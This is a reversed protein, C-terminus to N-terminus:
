IVDLGRNIESSFIQPSHVGTAVLLTRMTNELLPDVQAGWILRANPDIRKHVEGAVKQAEALTMDDGGYVNILAANAGSIDVDLLPSELAKQVSEMARGEGRGEGLGIMAMGGSQLVARLDAFDLNVLGPKTVMETIGKVARMLVEDAVKFAADLPLHPVIELLKNNPITIVTDAVKRLKDLGALANKKRTEGEAKFPLTVIALTLAGMEKAVEAVVPASGTGTGGGLGCTVFVMDCGLLSKRISEISERAAEEGVEPFSGAGYGRTRKKGILIKKPAKTHLLHQADTNMAFLEAGNVGEEFIRKVTNSGGGGCGIVKIVPKLEALITRLEEDSDVAVESVRSDIVTEEIVTRL